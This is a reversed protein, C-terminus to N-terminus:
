AARREDLRAVITQRLRTIFGPIEAPDKPIEYPGLVESFADILHVRFLLDLLRRGRWTGDNVVLYVPVRRAELAAALGATRFPRVAGDLSRHGEPFIIIGHPLEAAGRRVAEVAGKPDRKPDVLPAGALRLSASVLPVFRAYRTRTVFAPVRPEAMLTVQVIDLLAQHNAVVVVPSATPIIGRRRFHAGGLTLLAATGQCIGKMFRSVLMFRDQPRLWYWPMVVLWLVAGGVAWYTGVLLISLLSRLGRIVSLM